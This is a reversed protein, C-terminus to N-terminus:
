LHTLDNVEAESLTIGRSNARGGLGYLTEIRIVDWDPSLGLWNPQNIGTFTGSVAPLAM